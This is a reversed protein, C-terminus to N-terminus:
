ERIVAAPVEQSPSRATKFGPYSPTGAVTEVEALFARQAGTPHWDARTTVGVPRNSGVLDFGLPVMLGHDIEPAAQLRSICGIHDSHRLLQRMLILSGTEVISDPRQPMKHFLRDFLTRTPAGPRAVVWPYRALEALTVDGRGVLPHDHGAVLVLDDDFLVQQVVDGVPLHPRLAGILFDIEGRRLGALLDDYSGEEIRIPMRPRTTRFAAIARPLIYSRSLPMSGVVIRGVERGTHEALDMAAQDLEAFALRAADSLGQCARTARLGDPNRDFFQRGAESELQSISRHVTPQAIGLKRAALTFGGTERVAILARLQAATATLPLRPSIPQMAGDLRQLAREARRALMQGATTPYLGQAGRQFLATEALRELKAIVQTVAPQSLNRAEAARTVSGHRVVDLFVRLHRLNRNLM